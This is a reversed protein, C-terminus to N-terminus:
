VTREVAESLEGRLVKQEEEVLVLGDTYGSRLQPININRISACRHAFHNRKSGPGQLAM